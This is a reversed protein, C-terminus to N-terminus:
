TAVERSVCFREYLFQDTIVCLTENGSYQDPKSAIVPIIGKKAPIIGKYRRM